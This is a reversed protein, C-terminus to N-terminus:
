VFATQELIRSYVAKSNVLQFVYKLELKELVEEAALEDSLARYGLLTSQFRLPHNNVTVVATIADKNVKFVGCASAIIPPTRSM